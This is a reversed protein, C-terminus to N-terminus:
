AVPTYTVHADGNWGEGLEKVAEAEDAFLVTITLGSLGKFADEGVEQVPGATLDLATLSTCGVFAAEGILLHEYGTLTVGTLATCGNFCGNGLTAYSDECFKISVTQLSTCGKFENEGVSSLGDGSFTVTELATCGEFINNGLEGSFTTGDGWSMSGSGYFDGLCTFSVLSTCDKFAGDYIMYTYESEVTKKPLTISTLGSEAFAYENLVFIYEPIDITKLAACGKFAYSGIIGARELGFDSVTIDPAFTVSSLKVCGEFARESIMNGDKTDSSGEGLGEGLAVSTLATCGKFAKVGIWLYYEKYGRTNFTPAVTESAVTKLATCNEFASEALGAYVYEDYYGGDEVLEVRNRLRHPLTVEELAICGKFASKGISLAQTGGAEFTLTQLAVCNEFASEGIKTVNKGVTISELHACNAFANDPIETITDPLVISTIQSSAFAGSMIRTITDDVEYAGSTTSPASYIVTKDRNYLWGHDFVIDVDTSIININELACGAFPNGTFEYVTAPIEIYEIDSYAFAMNGISSVGNRLTIKSLGNCSAFAKAGITCDNGTIDVSEISTREFASVGISEVAFPIKVQTIGTLGCFAYDGITTVTDPLNLEGSLNTGYFAYDGVSELSSVNEFAFSDIATNEFAGAGITKLRCDASVSLTALNACGNFCDNGISQAQRPVNFSTLGANLFVGEDLKLQGSESFVASTLAPCGAFAKKEVTELNAANSFDVSALKACKYFAYSGITELSSREPLIVEELANCGKFMAAHLKTLGKPLKVSQLSTCGTFVTSIYDLYQENELYWDYPAAGLDTVSDPLAISGLSKCGMFANNKITTLSTSGSGSTAFIVETLSECANFAYTGITTVTAPITISQLAKAGNFADNPIATVSDPLTVSELYVNSAFAANSIETVTAPVTYTRDKLTTPYKLLSVVKGEKLGYIIGNQEIQVDTNPTTYTVTVGLDTAVSLNVISAVDVKAPVILTKLAFEEEYYSFNGTGIKTVNKPFTLTELSVCSGFVSSGISTILPCGDTFTISVLARCGSFLGNGMVGDGKYVGTTEDKSGSSGCYSAPLTISTLASCGSFAYSGLLAIKSGQAFTVSQLGTCGQFAYRDIETVSAPITVSLLNTQRYFASDGIRELDNNLVLTTLRVEGARYGPSFADDGISKIGQPLTLSTFQDTGYFARQPIETLRTAGDEFTISTFGCNGFSTDGLSALRKPLEIACTFDPLPNFEYNKTDYVKGVGYFADDEISLDATGDKEFTFSAPLCGYFAYGLIKTVTNPIVVDGKYGPLGLAATVLKGSSDKLFLVGNEVKCEDNDLGTVSALHDADSLTCTFSYTADITIKTGDPLAVSTVNTGSLLSLGLTLAPANDGRAEFTFSSLPAGSFASNGISEVTKPVCFTTLGTGRFTSNGITKLASGQAFTVTELNECGSFASNGLTTLSAPLNVETIGTNAFAGAGIETLGEGFTVTGLSTNNFAYTGISRLRAPLQETYTSSSATASAAIYFHQLSNCGDFARTGIALPDTGGDVFVVSVLNNCGAFAREDIQTVKNGLVVTELSLNGAFVNAGVTTVSEPLTFTKGRRNISYYKIETKNKNYLVGDESSLYPHQASVDVYVLSKCGAFLGSPLEQLTDPLTISSINECNEFAGAGFSVVNSKEDFVVKNLVTCNKFAGDGVTVPGFSANAGQFTVTRVKSCGEFANNGIKNVYAPITISYYGTCDKFAGDGVTRIGEPIRLNGRKAAPCYLITNGAKNCLIGEKHSYSENDDYVFINALSKTGSFVSVPDISKLRSPLTISELHECGVFAEEGIHLEDGTERDFYVNVISSEYFARYDINTVSSPITVSTLNSSSFTKIGISKTGARVVYHGTKALPVFALTQGVGSLQDNYYLVGEHSSYVPDNTLGTEYINVQELVTSSTFATETYILQITDPIEVQTTYRLFRFTGGEVVSVRKGKYTVPVVLKTFPNSYSLSSPKSVAYTDKYTGETQLTFVFYNFWAPYLKVDKLDKWVDLSNGNPDTYQVGRGDPESFWGLFTIYTYDANMVPMELTYNSRFKVTSVPAAVTAYDDMVYEVSFSKATWGAYLDIDSAIALKDGNFYRGSNASAGGPATYWGNLEYGSRESVPLTLADGLACYIDEVDSGEREDLTIKYAYVSVSEWGSAAKNEDIFRVYVTNEGSQTLKVPVTTTDNAVTQSAGGNVKVEYSVAGIVANWSVSNQSYTVAPSLSYYQATITEGPVSQQAGGGKIARVTIKYDIGNSLNLETLDYTTEAGRTTYDAGAVNVVYQEAGTVANWVLNGGSVKIGTPAALGARKYSYEGAAPSNYGKTVPTVSIKVNQSSYNRLSLYTKGGTVLEYTQDGDTVTVAYDAASAVPQWSVTETAGDFYFDEIKDLQRNYYYTRSTSAAYGAAYATVTFAIGGEQMECGEFNFYTSTGNDIDTHNHASNGCVISIKYKEAHEVANYTLVSPEVVTFLSVKGLAKNNFYRVTTESNNAANASVATVKIVHRGAVSTDFKADVSTAGVNRDVLKAGNPDSIEVYYGNAGSVADWVVMNGEVRPLPASLKGAESAPIWQAYVTTSSSFKYDDSYRYTLKDASEFDSVWWGGFKYGERVPTEVGYLKGAVTQKSVPEAAGEYNLDFWVTYEAEGTLPDSWKAYLTTDATVPSVGFLFAKTCDEDTYWGLFTHGAKVPDAPKNVSKGNMTKVSSVESGGCANYSVTYSVSRMFQMSSADYVVSLVTDKYTIAINAADGTFSLALTGDDNVKYTGKSVADAIQLLFTGDQLTVYYTGGEDTDYYYMGTEPHEETKKNCSTIGFVLCVVTSVLLFLVALRKKM